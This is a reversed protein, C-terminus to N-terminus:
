ACCRAYPTITSRAFYMRSPFSIESETGYTFRTDWLSALSLAIRARSIQEFGGDIRLTDPGTTATRSIAWLSPSISPLFGNSTPSSGSAEMMLSSKQTLLEPAVDIANLIDHGRRNAPHPAVPFVPSLRRLEALCLAFVSRCCRGRDLYKLVM